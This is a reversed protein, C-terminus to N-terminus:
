GKRVELIKGESSFIVYIRENSKRMQLTYIVKGGEETLDADRIEYGNYTTKASNMVLVPVESNRLDQEHKLINAKDDFIFVHDMDNIEGKLTYRVKANEETLMANDLDLAGYKTKIQAAIVSPVESDKLEKTYKLLSGTEDIVFEHNKDNIELKIKYSIKGAGEMREADSVDFFTVKSKITELVVKPIESVYLDQLHQLIIGRDSMMLENEKNNVEFDIHYNGKELKWKVDTANSFKLQFANLVVAPVNRQSIDQAFTNGAFLALVLLGIIRKM